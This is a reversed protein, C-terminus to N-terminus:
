NINIIKSSSHHGKIIRIDKNYVKLYERVLELVRKNAMNREASEKVSVLISDKAKKTIKEIKADTTVKVKLLM